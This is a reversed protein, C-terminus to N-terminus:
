IRERFSKIQEALELLTLAIVGLIQTEELKSAEKYENFWRNLLIVSKIIHNESAELDRKITWRTQKPM